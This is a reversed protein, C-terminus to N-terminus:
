RGDMEPLLRLSAEILPPCEEIEKTQWFAPGAVSVGRVDRGADRWKELWASVPQSLGGASGSSIEILDTRQAVEPIALEAGELGRALSSSLAYGAIEVSGREALQAKLRNMAGKAAGGLLEGAIKLRLFQQLYLRGSTVPQWLLLRCPQGIRGAAEAALLAGTRLGWWCLAVGAQASLWAGAEVLNAIWSEWTADAFDGASDGCGLLDVQLVVYGASAMAKAQLAAMRRSKNMEEAFPHVYLVAGKVALEGAPRHLLCFLRGGTVPLFFAELSM